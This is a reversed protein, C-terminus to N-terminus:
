QIIPLVLLILLQLGTIQLSSLNCNIHHLVWHGDTLYHRNFIIDLGNKKIEKGVPLNM